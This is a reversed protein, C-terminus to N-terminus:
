VPEPSDTTEGRMIVESWRALSRDDPHEYPQIAAKAEDLSLSALFRLIPVIARMRSDASRLPIGNEDAFRRLDSISRFMEGSALKDRISLLLEHLAPDRKGVEELLQAGPMPRPGRAGASSTPRPMALVGELVSALKAVEEPNRLLNALSEFTEPGHRRVLRALDVTLKEEPTM